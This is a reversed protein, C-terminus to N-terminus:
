EQAAPDLLERDVFSRYCIIWLPEKYQFTLTSVTAIVADTNLLARHNCLLVLHFLYQYSEGKKRVFLEEILFCVATEVHKHLTRLARWEARTAHTGRLCLAKAAVHEFSVASVSSAILRLRLRQVRVLLMWSPCLCLSLAFDLDPELCTSYFCNAMFRLDRCISTRFLFTFCVGSQM